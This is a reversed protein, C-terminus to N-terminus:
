RENSSTGTIPKEWEHLHMLAQIEEPVDTNCNWCNAPNEGTLWSVNDNQTYDKMYEQGTEQKCTLHIGYLNTGNEVDEESAKCISWDGLEFLPPKNM